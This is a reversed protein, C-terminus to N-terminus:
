QLPPPNKRVERGSAIGSIAGTIKWQGRIKKAFFVSEFWTNYTERKESDAITFEQHTVAVAHNDKVHVRKIDASHQLDPNKFYTSAGARDAYERVFEPGVQGVSWGTNDEAGRAYFVTEEPSYCSYVQEADNKVFGEIERLILLKVQKCDEATKKLEEFDETWVSAAFTCCVMVIVFLMFKRSM